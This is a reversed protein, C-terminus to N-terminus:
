RIWRSYKRLLAAIASDYTKGKAGVVFCDFGANDITFEAVFLGNIYRVSLKVNRSRLIDHLPNTAGKTHQVIPSQVSSGCSPPTGASGIPQYGRIDSM